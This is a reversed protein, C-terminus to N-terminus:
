GKGVLALPPEDPAGGSWRLTAVRPERASGQSVGLLARMGLRELAARDHVEVELGLASGLDRCADAFAEPSLVNAPESVLDRGHTVGAIVAAAASWAAEAAATETLHLTLRAVEDASEEDTEKTTRYKEFRYARLCAGTALDIALEPPTTEFGGPAEVVVDAQRVRLARLKVALRGGVGELDFRSTDQPKGLSLLVVRDVELGAPYRLEIAEGRKLDGGWDELARSLSGGARRDLEAGTAGLAGDAAALVVWTGSAPLTLPAFAIQM